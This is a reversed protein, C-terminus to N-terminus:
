QLEVLVRERLVRQFVGRDGGLTRGEGKKSFRRENGQNQRGLSRQRLWRKQGGVM